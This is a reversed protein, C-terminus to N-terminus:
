RSGGCAADGFYPDKRLLEALRARGDRLRSRVTTEGCGVITAIEPVELGELDHLVVVARRAAGVRDLARYLRSYREQNELEVAPTVETAAIPLDDGFYELFKRKLRSAFRLHRVWVRYCIAHSFTSFRSEGRFDALELELLADQILDSLDARPGVFARMQRAVLRVRARGLPVDRESRVDLSGEKSPGLVSDMAIM